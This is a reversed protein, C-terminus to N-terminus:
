LPKIDQQAAITHGPAPELTPAPQDPSPYALDTGTHPHLDFILTGLLWARAKSLGCSHAVQFFTKAYIFSVPHNRIREPTARSCLRVLEPIHATTM